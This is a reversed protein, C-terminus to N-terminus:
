AEPHIQQALFVRHAPMGATEYAERVKELDSGAFMCLTLRGDQSAISGLWQQSRAALCEELKPFLLAKREETLPPDYHVECVVISDNM